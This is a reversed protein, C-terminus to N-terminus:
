LFLRISWSIKGYKKVVNQVLDIVKEENSVDCVIPEIDKGYESLKSAVAQLSKKERGSIIVVAEREAFGKALAEGIGRSGGSVLVVTGSVNFIQDEM